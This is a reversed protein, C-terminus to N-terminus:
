AAEAPEATEAADAEAAKQRERSENMYRLALQLPKLVCNEVVACAAVLAIYALCFICSCTFEFASKLTGPPILRMEEDRRLKKIKSM